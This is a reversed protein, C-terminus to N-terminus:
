KWSIALQATGPDTEPLPPHYGNVLIPVLLITRRLVAAVGIVLLVIVTGWLIRRVRPM